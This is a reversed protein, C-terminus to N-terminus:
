QAAKLLERFVAANRPANAQYDNNFFAYLTRGPLHSALRSAWDSLEQRSYDYRYSQKGLGHQKGNIAAPLAV